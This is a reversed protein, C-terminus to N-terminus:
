ETKTILLKWLNDSLDKVPTVIKIPTPDKSDTYFYIVMNEKRKIRSFYEILQGINIKHYPYGNNNLFDTLDKLDVRSLEQHMQDRLIEHKM